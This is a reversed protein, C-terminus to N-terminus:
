DEVPKTMITHNPYEPLKDVIEWGQAKYTEVEDNHVPAIYVYRLPSM